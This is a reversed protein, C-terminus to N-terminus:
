RLRTRDGVDLGEVIEVDDRTREGIKVEREKVTNEEIVFVKYIGYVYLLADEPVFLADVVYNSPITAKVFFGPKLLSERNDILAEVEFARTQQDVSPNIRTIKGM